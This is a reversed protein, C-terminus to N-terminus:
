IHTCKFNVTHHYMLFYILLNILQDMSLYISPSIVVLILIVLVEMVERTLKHTNTHM